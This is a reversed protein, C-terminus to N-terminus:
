IFASLGNEELGKQTQVDKRYIEGVISKNTNLDLSNRGTPYHEAPAASKRSGGDLSTRPSVDNMSIGAGIEHNKDMSRDKPAGVLNLGTTFPRCLPLFFVKTPSGPFRYSTGRPSTELRAFEPLMCIVVLFRKISM